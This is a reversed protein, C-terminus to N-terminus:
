EICIPVQDSKPAEPTMVDGADSQLPESCSYMSPLVACFFGILIWDSRPHARILKAATTCEKAIAELHVAQLFSNVRGQFAKFFIKAQM